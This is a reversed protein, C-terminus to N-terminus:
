ERDRYRSRDACGSDKRDFDIFVPAFERSTHVGVIRKIRGLFIHSRDDGFFSSPQTHIDDEFHGAM